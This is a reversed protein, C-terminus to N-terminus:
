DRQVYDQLMRAFYYFCAYNNYRIKQILAVVSLNYNIGFQHEM